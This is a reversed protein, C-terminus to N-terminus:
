GRKVLRAGTIYKKTKRKPPCNTMRAGRPIKQGCGDIRFRKEIM